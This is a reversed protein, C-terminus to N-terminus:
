ELQPRQPRRGQCRCRAMATKAKVSRAQKPPKKEVLVLARRIAEEPRRESTAMLLGWVVRRVRFKGTGRELHGLAYARANIPRTCREPELKHNV